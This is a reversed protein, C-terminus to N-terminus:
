SDPGLLLEGFFLRVFNESRAFPARCLQACRLTRLPQGSIKILNPRSYKPRFRTASSRASKRVTARALILEIIPSFSPPRANGAKEKMAAETEGGTFVIRVYKRLREPFHAKWKGHGRARVVTSQRRGHRHTEALRYRRRVRALISFRKPHGPPPNKGVRRTGVTFFGFSTGM